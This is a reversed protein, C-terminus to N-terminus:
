YYQGVPPQFVGLGAGAAALVQVLIDRGPRWSFGTQELRTLNVPCDTMQDPHRGNRRGGPERFGAPGSPLGLRPCGLLLGRVPRATEDDFTQQFSM